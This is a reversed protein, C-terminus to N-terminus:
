RAPELTDAVHGALNLATLRGSLATASWASRSSAPERVRRLLIERSYGPEVSFADDEPQCGAVSLRVGYAFRRTSISARVQDAGIRELRLRLGLGVPSERRLPRGAPFRFSQSLLEGGHKRDELSLVILDQGPPGFRYSWSADIFRGLLEEVNDARSSHRDLRVPLEVEDVAIEFDRYMVIRLTAELPESRDNAVHVVIGGLGENTSWVARSALIRRVHHYAVKPLARHDLLGWGAGPLQDTLWLILAGACPSGDRRWEGLVESMVEGTLQRSLELYRDHDISRLAVPDVEYLMRLYHDRVDEFDWGAGADRPVGAKWRPHHVVVGRPADIASLAEDDPVNSFALCEAAFKVEALRADELQKELLFVRAQVDAVESNVEALRINLAFLKSKIRDMESGAM